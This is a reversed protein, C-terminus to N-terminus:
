NKNVSKFNQINSARRSFSLAVNGKQKQTNENQLVFLPDM